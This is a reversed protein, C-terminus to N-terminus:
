PCGAAFKNLFCQFDNANLIPPATSNDCNAYADASAFKNLFCQFDNANLIPPATSNDCNAYCPAPTITALWYEDIGYHRGYGLITQGDESVDLAGTLEWGALNIGLATLLVSLDSIGHGSRYIFAKYNYAPDRSYGVVVDGSGNVATASSSQDGSPVGLSAMGGMATWRFARYNNVSDIQVMGVVVSGDGNSDTAYSQIDTPSLTGLSLMGSQSSWRMARRDVSSGGVFGILTSGDGSVASAACWPYGAITGVFQTGGSVTWRFAEQHYEQGDFLSLYGAATGGNRSLSLVYASTWNATPLIPLTEGTDKWWVSGSANHGVLVSGDYSVATPDSFPPGGFVNGSETSRWAVGGGPLEVSGIVTKGDGSLATATQGLTGPVVGLGSFSPGCCSRVTLTAISTAQETGCDFRVIAAYKGANVRQVSSILLTLNNEGAIVLGDKFWQVSQSNTTTVVSFTAAQGAIVSQDQPQGTIQPGSYSLAWTDTEYDLSQNLGGYAVVARRTADYFMAHGARGVMGAITGQSSWGSSGLEWVENSIALTAGGTMVIRGRSEDCAFGPGYRPAPTASLAGVPAWSAGDWEWPRDATPLQAETGGGFVVTKGRIPDFAMGASVRPGPNTPSGILNWQAGNFEWTEYSPANQDDSGGYLVCVHRIRDYVMSHNKRVKMSAPVLTSLNTWVETSPDLRWFQNTTQGLDNNGGFMYCCEAVTDYAM